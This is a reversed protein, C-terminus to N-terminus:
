FARGKMDQERKNPEFLLDCGRSDRERNADEVRLVRVEDPADLRKQARERLHAMDTRGISQIGHKLLGSRRKEKQIQARFLGTIKEFLNLIAPRFDQDHGEPSRAGLGQALGFLGADM